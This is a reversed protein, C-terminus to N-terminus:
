YDSFKTWIEIRFSGPRENTSKDLIRVGAIKDADPFEGTVAKFVLMEWIEQVKKIPAQFDVRFEGGYKNTPDEWQPEINAEFLSM